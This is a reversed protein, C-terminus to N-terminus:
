GEDMMASKARKLTAMRAIERVPRTVHLAFCSKTMWSRSITGLHASLVCRVLMARTVHVNEIAREQELAKANAIIIAFPM